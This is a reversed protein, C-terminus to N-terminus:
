REGTPLGLERRLRDAAAFIRTRREPALSALNRVIVATRPNSAFTARYKAVFSWFLGDWQDVWPGNRPWDSMKRLYNSGSVYPKTTIAGASAFQSMGYVNPVMVWDYADVFLEMFWRYVEDPAIELLLMVNGFVMLREIHHCYGDELVRGILADLPEMGTSGDYLVPPMRNTLAFHNAHRMQRGDRRYVARMFERWGVVQRIFGELSAITPESVAHLAADVLERPRLLGINLMPTLAGHYIQPHAQAIADEYPGFRPLRDAVFEALWGRAGEHDIPYRFHDCSGPNAGFEAAVRSCAREVSRCWEVTREARAAPPPVHGRPLKKRNESDFSWRGGLPAGAADILIGMRERQHRYFRAMRPTGTELREIATRHDLLFGPTPDIQLGIGRETCATTCRREIWDDDPDLMRVARVGAAVFRDTLARYHLDPLDEHRLYVVEHGDTALLAAYREMSAIHLVLKQKHVAHLRFLLPDEILWVRVTVAGSLLPHPRYLQHPLILANM